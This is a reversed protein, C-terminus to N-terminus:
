LLALIGFHLSFYLSQSSFFVGRVSFGNKRLLFIATPYVVLIGLFLFINPRYSLTGLHMSFSLYKAQRLLKIVTHYVVLMVLLLFINPRYSLRVFHVSFSTCKAQM